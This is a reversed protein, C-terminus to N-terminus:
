SEATNSLFSVWGQKLVKSSTPTVHANVPTLLHKRLSNQFLKARFPRVASDMALHKRHMIVIWALPLFVVIRKREVCDNGSPPIEPITEGYHLLEGSVFAAREIGSVKLSLGCSCGRLRGALPHTPALSFLPFKGM